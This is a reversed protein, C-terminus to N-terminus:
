ITCYVSQLNYAESRMEFRGIRVPCKLATKPKMEPLFSRGPGTTMTTNSINSLLQEGLHNEETRKSLILQILYENLPSRM